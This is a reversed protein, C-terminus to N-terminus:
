PTQNQSQLFLQYLQDTTFYESIGSQIVVGSLLDERHSFYKYWRDDDSNLNRTYYNDKIWEAFAIAQQEAHIDMAEYVSSVEGDFFDIGEDLMFSDKIEDISEKLIEEKTLM